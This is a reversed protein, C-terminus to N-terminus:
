FHLFVGVHDIPFHIFSSLVIFHLYFCYFDLSFSNQFYFNPFFIFIPAVSATELFLVSSISSDWVNYIHYFFNICSDLFMIDLFNGSVFCVLFRPCLSGLFVLSLPLLLLWALPGWITKLLLWSPINELMFLAIGIFTFLLICFGLYIQGSFFSRTM